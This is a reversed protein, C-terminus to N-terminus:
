QKLNITDQTVQDFTTVVKANAQFGRQTVIMKAFETAIDVNSQELAGGTLAGRGGSGPAGVVAAGSSLTALYSNAGARQLGQENAFNALALQAIASTQGNSFTGQIMGDGGISFSLLTGSSYGNQFTSSQTSQSAVQSLLPNGSTDYLDWTIDMDAAGDALGPIKIGMVNGAPSTLKGSSDFQLDTSKTPDPDAAGSAIVVPNGVQGVDAAPVTIQYSWAGGSEKTFQFTLLHSVGLSDYVMLPPASFSTGDASTADLNATMQMATTAAPPSIQGQGLLIPSLAQGPPVTGNVALYGLVSYGDQTMLQGTPSIAFHGDRTFETVGDNDTVFFGKGTIAADTAVGTTEPSGDNFNTSVSSVKTGAGLQVPDGAGTNGILQYFLDQFSAKQDKFGPTNLNALNNAIVSLADSSAALGSLPISFMPM